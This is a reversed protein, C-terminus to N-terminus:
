LPFIALSEVAWAETLYQFEAYGESYVRARFITVEKLIWPSIKRIIERFYEPIKNQHGKRKLIWSLYTTEDYSILISGFFGAIIPSIVYDIFKHQTTVLFSRAEELLSSKDNVYMASLLMFSYTRERFRM